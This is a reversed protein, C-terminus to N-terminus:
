FVSCLGPCLELPRGPTLTTSVEGAILLRESRLVDLKNLRKMYEPHKGILVLQYFCIIKTSDLYSSGKEHGCLTSLTDWIWPLFTISQFRSKFMGELGYFVMMMMAVYDALAVCFYKGELIWQSGTPSSKIVCCSCKGEMLKSWILILINKYSWSILKRM